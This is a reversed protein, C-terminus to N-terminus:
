KKDISEDRKMSQIIGNSSSSPMKIKNTTEISVNLKRIILQNIHSGDELLSATLKEPDGIAYISFPSYEMSADDFGLHTYGDIM